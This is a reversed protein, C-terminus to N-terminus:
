GNAEDDETPDEPAFTKNCIPDEDVMQDPSIEDETVSQALSQLMLKEGKIDSVIFFM